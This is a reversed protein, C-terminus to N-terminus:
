ADSPRLRHAWVTLFVCILLWIFLFLKLLGTFVIMIYTVAKPGVGWVAGVISSMQTHVILLYLGGILVMLVFGALLATWAACAAAGVCAAWQDPTQVQEQQAM